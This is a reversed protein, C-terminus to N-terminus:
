KAALLPLLVNGHRGDHNRPNDEGREEQKVEKQPSLPRTARHWECGHEHNQTNPENDTNGKAECTAPYAELMGHTHNMFAGLASLASQQNLGDLGGDADILDGTLDRGRSGVEPGDRRHEQDTDKWEAGDEDLEVENHVVHPKALYVVHEPEKEEAVANHDNSTGGDRNQEDVEQEAALIIM